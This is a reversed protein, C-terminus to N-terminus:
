RAKLRQVAVLPLGLDRVRGLLGHLEAQDAVPGTLTTEGTADVRVSMGDFWEIWSDSLVGAVTIRYIIPQDTSRTTDFQTNM